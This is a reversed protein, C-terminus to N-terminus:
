LLTLSEQKRDIQTVDGLAYWFLMTSNDADFMQLM